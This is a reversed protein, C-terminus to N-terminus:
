IYRSGGILPKDILGGQANLERSKKLGESIIKDQYKGLAKDAKNFLQKETKTKALGSKLNSIANRMYDSKHLKKKLIIEWNPGTEKKMAKNVLDKLASRISKNKFIQQLGVRLLGGLLFGKRPELLGNRNLYNLINQDM